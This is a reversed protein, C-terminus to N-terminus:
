TRIRQILVRPTAPADSINLTIDDGNSVIAVAHAVNTVSFLVSGQIDVRDSASATWRVSTFLGGSVLTGNLTVGIQVKQPNGTASHVLGYGAITLLYLGTSPVTINRNSDSLAFGADQPGASTNLDFRQGTAGGAGSGLAYMAALDRGASITQIATLLQSHTGKVLTIGAGEIAQCINEQVGNVWADDVITAARLGPQGNTFGDKGAGNADVLKTPHDIRHM